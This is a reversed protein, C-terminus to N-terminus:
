MDVLAVNACTYNNPFLLFFYSFWLTVTRESGCKESFFDAKLPLCLPRKITFIAHNSWSRLKNSFMSFVNLFIWNSNDVTWGKFTSVKLFMKKHRAMNFVKSLLNSFLREFGCFSHSKTILINREQM